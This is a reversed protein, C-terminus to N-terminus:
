GGAGGATRALKEAPSGCNSRRAFAEARGPHRRRAWERGGGGDGGERRGGSGHDGDGEDGHGGPPSRNRLGGASAAGLCSWAVM